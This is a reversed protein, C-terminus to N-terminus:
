NNQAWIEACSIHCFRLDEYEVIYKQKIVNLNKKCVPCREITIVPQIPTANMIFKLSLKIVFYM